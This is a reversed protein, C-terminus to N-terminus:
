ETPIWALHIRSTIVFIYISEEVHHDFSLHITGDNPCIGLSIHNHRDNATQLYDEFVIFEWDRDCMHRRGLVVHRNENYYAIYQYEIHSIIIDQSAIHTNMSGWFTGWTSPISLGPGINETQRSIVSVQGQSSSINFTVILLILISRSYNLICKRLDEIHVPISIM